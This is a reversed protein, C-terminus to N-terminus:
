LLIHHRKSISYNAHISFSFLHMNTLFFYMNSNPITIIIACLSSLSPSSSLAIIIAIIIIIIIIIIIVIIIIIIFVIFSIIIVFLLLDQNWPMLPLFNWVTKKRM